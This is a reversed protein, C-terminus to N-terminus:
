VHLESIITGYETVKMTAGRANTLTYAFVDKGEFKGFVSKAIAPAQPELPPPTPAAPAPTANAVPPAEPASPPPPPPASGGCAALWSLTLACVARHKTFVHRHTM